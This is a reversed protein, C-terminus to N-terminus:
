GIVFGQHNVYNWRYADWVGCLHVLAGCVVLVHFIQHSSGWVDFRGPWVSEPVRTAFFFAGLGYVGGELFWYPMGSRVWMEAWGYLCLGHIIPAFGSLATAVFAWTRLTRYRVGQLGPHTVLLFTLLILLTIMSWYLRQLSPHTYFGVHIGSIFSTLILTLIGVYDLRLCLLSVHQSHSMLTHYITSLTLTTSFALINLHIITRDALTSNPFSTRLHHHLLPQSLITLVAPFLHTYINLSENHLYTLSRLCTQHSHSVPRYHTHVNPNDQYWKPLDRFHLLNPHTSPPRISTSSASSEGAASTKSRIRLTALLSASARLGNTTSSM